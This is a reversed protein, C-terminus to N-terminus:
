VLEPPGRKVADFLAKQLGDKDVKPVTFSPRSHYVGCVQCHADDMLFQLMFVGGEGGGGGEWKGCHPISFLDPM